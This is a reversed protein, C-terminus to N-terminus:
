PENGQPAACIAAARAWLEPTFHKEKLKSLEVTGGPRDDIRCLFIAHLLRASQSKPHNALVRELTAIAELFEGRGAQEQAFAIGAEESESVDSMTDLEELTQAAAPVAILAGCLIAAALNRFNHRNM